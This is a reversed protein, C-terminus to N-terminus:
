DEIERQLWARWIGSIGGFHASLYDACGRKYRYMGLVRERDGTLYFDGDLYPCRTFIVRPLVEKGSKDTM